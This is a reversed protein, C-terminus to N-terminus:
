KENITWKETNFLAGWVDKTSWYCYFNKTKHLIYYSVVIWAFKKSKKGEKRLLWILISWIERWIFSKPASVAPAQFVTEFRLKQKIVKSVFMEESWGKKKKVNSITTIQKWFYECNSIPYISSISRVRSNLLPWFTEANKNESKQHFMQRITTKLYNKTM